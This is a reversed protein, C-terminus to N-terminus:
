TGAVLLGVLLLLIIVWLIWALQFQILSRQLRNYRSSLSTLFNALADGAVSLFKQDIFAVFRGVLLFSTGVYMSTQHFGGEVKALWNSTALAKRAVVWTSAYFYWGNLLLPIHKQQYTYSKNRLKKLSSFLGIGAAVWTALMWLKIFYVDGRSVAKLTAHSPYLTYAQKVIFGEVGPLMTLGLLATLIALSAQMIKFGRQEGVLAAKYPQPRLLFLLFFSKLLYVITLFSSFFNILLAAYAGIYGRQAGELSWSLTHQVLLEKTSFGNIAPLGALATIALLYSFAALPLQKISALSFPSVSSYISTPHTYFREAIGVCLFLCVKALTHVVFYWMAHGPMNLGIAAAILGVHAITSYALMRKPRRQAFASTSALFVTLYGIMVLGHLFAPALLPGIRCLFYIGVGLVTATHLLSSVPIPAVMARPLWSFFPFQAMKALAALVFFACMWFFWSPLSLHNELYFHKLCYLSSNGLYCTPLLIGILLFLSGLRNMLIVYSSAQITPYATYRLGVLLGSLLGVMEWSLYILFLNDALVIWYSSVMLGGVQIFYRRKECVDKFYGIAYLAVLFSILALTILM